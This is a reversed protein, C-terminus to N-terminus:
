QSEEKTKQKQLGVSAAPCKDFAFGAPPGQPLVLSGFGLPSRRAKRLFRFIIMIFRQAHLIQLGAWARRGQAANPGNKM